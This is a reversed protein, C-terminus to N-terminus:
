SSKGVMYDVVAKVDEDSLSARGGKAPMAKFGNIAHSYLKDKGQSIRSAWADKKGVIPAGAAGTGHCAFCATDYTAKGNSATVPASDITAVKTASDTAKQSTDKTIILQGVPKVREVIEENDANAALGIM